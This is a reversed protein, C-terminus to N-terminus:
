VHFLFAIGELSVDTIKEALWDAKFTFEVHFVILDENLRIQIHKVQYAIVANRARLLTQEEPSCKRAAYFGFAPAAQLGAQRINIGLKLLEEKERFADAVFAILHDRLVPVDVEGFCEAIVKQQAQRDIVYAPCVAFADASLAALVEVQCLAFM